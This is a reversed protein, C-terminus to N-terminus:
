TGSPDKETDKGTPGSVAIAGDMFSIHDVKGITNYLHATVNGGLSNVLGWTWKNVVQKFSGKFLGLDIKISNNTRTWNYSSVNFGHKVLNIIGDTIFNFITFFFEGNEDKLDSPSPESIIRKKMRWLKM